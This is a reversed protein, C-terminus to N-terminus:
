AATASNLPKATTRQSGCPSATTAYGRGRTRGPKDVLFAARDGLGPRVTDILREALVPSDFVSLEIRPQRHPILTELVDLWYGLHRTLMSAEARGSGSDRCSSVLAFLRFHAAAGPGFM